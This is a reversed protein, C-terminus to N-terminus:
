CTCSCTSCSKSVRALVWPLHLAGGELQPLLLAPLLQSSATSTLLLSPSAQYAALESAAAFCYTSRLVKWSHKQSPLVVPSILTLAELASFLCSAHCHSKCAQACSARICSHSCHEHAHRKLVWLAELEFLKLDQDSRGGVYLIPAREARHAVNLAALAVASLLLM